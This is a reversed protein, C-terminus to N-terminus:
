IGSRVSISVMIDPKAARSQCSCMINQTESAVLTPPTRPINNQM